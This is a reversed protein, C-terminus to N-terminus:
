RKLYKPLPFIRYEKILNKGYVIRSFCEATLKADELANHIKRNDKMGCFELIKSLSMDSRNNKILLKGNIELYKQSAMSHLDYARWHFDYAINYKRAKSVIHGFDIHICHGMFNKTKSKDCWALFKKILDKQSMKKKDRLKEETMGTIQMAEQSIINDDDIRCQGFFKRKPNEFDVAGIEFIGGKVFDSYSFETDFVIM